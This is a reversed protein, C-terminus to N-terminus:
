AARQEGIALQALMDVLSPKKPPYEDTHIIDHLWRCAQVKNMDLERYAKEIPTKYNREPWMLHHEDAYCGHEQQGRLPKPVKKEYYPCFEKSLECKTIM